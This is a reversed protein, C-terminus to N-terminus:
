GMLAITKRASPMTRLQSTLRAAGVSASASVRGPAASTTGSHARSATDNHDTMSAHRVAARQVTRERDDDYPSSTQGAANSPRLDAREARRLRSSTSGKM